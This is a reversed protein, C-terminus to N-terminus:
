AQGHSWRPIRPSPPDGRGTAARSARAEGQPSSVDNHSSVITSVLEAHRVAHRPGPSDPDLADSVRLVRKWLFRGHLASALGDDLNTGFPPSSGGCGQPCM